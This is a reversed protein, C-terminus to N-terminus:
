FWSAMISERQAPKEPLPNHVQMQTKPVAPLSLLSHQDAGDIDSSGQLESLLEDDDFMVDNAVESTFDEMAHNMEEMNVNGVDAHLSQMAETAAQMAMSVHRNEVASELLLIQTEMTFIAGKLADIRNELRKKRAMCRIAGKHDGSTLKSKAEMLLLSIEKGEELAALRSEQKAITGRLLELTQEEEKTMPSPKYQSENCGDIPRSSENDGCTSTMTLRSSNAKLAIPQGLLDDNIRHQTTMEKAADDALQELEKEVRAKELKEEEIAAAAERAVLNMAELEETAAHERQQRAFWEAEDNLRRRERAAAVADEEQQMRALRDCEDSLCKRERALAVAEEERKMQAVREAEMNLPKREAQALFAAEEERQHRALREAEERLRDREQALLQAETAIAKSVPAAVSERHKFPSAAIAVTASDKPKKSRFVASLVRKQKTALDHDTKLQLTQLKEMARQEFDNRSEKAERGVTATSGERERHNGEKAQRKRQQQAVLEEADMRATVSELKKLVQDVQRANKIRLSVNMPNKQRYNKHKPLSDISFTAFRIGYVYADNLRREDLAQLFQQLLRDTVAYYKEIPYTGIVQIINVKDADRLAKRRSASPSSESAGAM